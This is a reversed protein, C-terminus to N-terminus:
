HCTHFDISTLTKITHGELSHNQVADRFPNIKSEEGHGSCVADVDSTWLPLLVLLTNRFTKCLMTKDGTSIFHIITNIYTNTRKRFVVLYIMTEVNQKIGLNICDTLTIIYLKKMAPGLIQLSTKKEYLALGWIEQDANNELGDYSKDM